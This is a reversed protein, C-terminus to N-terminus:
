FFNQSPYAKLMLPLNIYNLKKRLLAVAIQLRMVKSLIFLLEPQISLTFGL